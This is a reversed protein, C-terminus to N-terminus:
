GRLYKESKENRIIFKPGDMKASKFPYTYDLETGLAGTEKDVVSPRTKNLISSVALDSLEAFQGITFINYRMMSKVRQPTIGTRTAISEILEPDTKVYKCEIGTILGFKEEM